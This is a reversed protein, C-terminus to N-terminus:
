MSALSSGKQKLRRDSHQPSIQDYNRKATSESAAALKERQVINKYTKIKSKTSFSNTSDSESIEGHESVDLVTRSNRGSGPTKVAIVTRGKKITNNVSKALDAAPLGPINFPELVGNDINLVPACVPKTLSPDGTALDSMGSCFLKRDFADEFEKNVTEILKICVEATLGEIDAGTSIKYKILFISKYLSVTESKMTHYKNPTGDLTWLPKM